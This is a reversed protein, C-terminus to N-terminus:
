FRTYPNKRFIPPTGSAYGHKAEFFMADIEEPTTGSRCQPMAIAMMRACDAFHSTWDHYPKEQYAKREDDYIRRYNSLADILKKCKTKNIWIRGLLMRLAEIGELIPINDVPQMEMGLNAAAQQRSIAGAAGWERVKIDHPAWIPKAYAYDKSDLLKKLYDVGQNIFEDCDIIRVVNGVVQYYIVITPDSVGLDLSVWVPFNAEYMISDSIRDEQRMKDMQNGFYTGAQGCEFSCEYEQLYADLSMSAREKALIHQPIHQTISVPKYSCLWDPDNQAIQYMEYFHNAMGRPTGNFIAFGDNLALRPRLYTYSRPDSCQYESWVIGKPNTGVLRKHAEDSGNVQIISNNILRILMQSENVKSILQKPIFDFLTQGNSLLMQWIVERGQVSSPLLYLYFGVESLAARVLCNWACVDKGSGRSWCMFIKRKRPADFGFLARM